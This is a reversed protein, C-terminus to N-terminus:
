KRSLIRRDLELPDIKVVRVSKSYDPYGPNLIYNYQNPLVASKAKIGMYKEGRLIRDGIKKLSMNDPVRWDAPLRSDPVKYMPAKDNVELTMIFMHPPLESEDVHVLIELLALAPNESTYLAYTGASNWRGGDNFAGTGSLDSARRRMKVIRYLLM